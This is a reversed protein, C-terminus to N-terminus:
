WGASRMSINGSATLAHQRLGHGGLRPLLQQRAARRQRRGRGLPQVVDDFVISHERLQHGRCVLADAAHEAGHHALPVVEAGIVRERLVAVLREALARHMAVVAGHRLAHAQVRRVTQLADDVLEERAAHARVRVERAVLARGAM